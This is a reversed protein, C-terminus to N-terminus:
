HRVPACDHLSDPTSLIHCMMRMCCQLRGHSPQTSVTYREDVISSLPAIVYSQQESRLMKSGQMCSMCCRIWRSEVQWGILQFVLPFTAVAKTCIPLVRMTVKDPRLTAPVRAEPLRGQARTVHFTASEAFTKAAATGERAPPKRLSLRNHGSDSRYDCSCCPTGQVKHIFTSLLPNHNGQSSPIVHQQICMAGPASHLM